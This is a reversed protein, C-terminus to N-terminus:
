SNKAARTTISTQDNRDSNNRTQDAALGLKLLGARKRREVRADLSIDFADSTPGLAEVNISYSTQSSIKEHYKYVRLEDLIKEM